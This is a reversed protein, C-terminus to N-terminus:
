RAASVDPSAGSDILRWITTDGDDFTAIAEGSSQLLAQQPPWTDLDYKAVLVHSIGAARLNAIFQQPSPRPGPEKAFFTLAPHERFREHLPRLPVGHGDTFVPTFQWDRGFLPSNFYPNSAFRALRSGDPLAELRLIAEGLSKGGQTRLHERLSRDAAARMKPELIALMPWFGILSALALPKRARSPLWSVFVFSALAVVGGGYTMIGRSPWCMALGAATLVQWAWRYRSPSALLPSALVLGFLFWPMVYRSYVMIRGDFYGGGICFPAFLHLIFQTIGCILLLRCLPREESDMEALRCELWIARLYGSLALLGLPLPWDLYDYILNGWLRATWPAWALLSTLRIERQEGRTLPGDFPGAEAPFLPNGTEIWNGLYWVSGLVAAALSMAAALSIRVRGLKPIAIPCLCILAAVPLFTVKTGGAFGALLGAAVAQGKRHSKISSIAFYIAALLSASGALDCASFTRTQWVIQPSALIATSIIHASTVNGNMLRVLGGAAIAALALWAIGTLGVMGDHQWPLAFWASLLEANLPLYATFQPMFQSFDGRQIWSAVAVAHYGFDDIFYGTGATVLRVLPFSSFAILVAITLRLSM